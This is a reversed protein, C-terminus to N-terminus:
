QTPSLAMQRESFVLVNIKIVTFETFKSALDEGRVLDIFESNCPYNSLQPTKPILVLFSLKRVGKM